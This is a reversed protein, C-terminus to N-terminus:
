LKSSQNSDDDEELRWWPKSPLLANRPPHGGDVPICAGHLYSLCPLCIGVIVNAVESAEGYRQLPVMKKAYKEKSEKPIFHNIQTNIPGPLVCNVRINQPGLELALAKTLGVVAHKAMVYPTNFLTAGTGESSSINVINSSSKKGRGGRLLATYFGRCLRVVALANVRWQRELAREFNELGAEDQCHSLSFMDACGANNVLINLVPPANPNNKDDDRQFYSLADGIFKEVEARCGVDVVFSKLKTRRRESAGDGCCEKCERETKKLGDANLDCLVLNAGLTSFLKATEKGMGSGAGTVVVNHGRFTESGVVLKNAM